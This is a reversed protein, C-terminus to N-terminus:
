NKKNFSVHLVYLRLLEVCYIGTYISIYIQSLLCIKIKFIHLSKSLKVENPVQEWIKVARHRFGKKTMELKAVPPYYSGKTTNRTTKGSVMSTLQFMNIIGTPQLHHVVKYMETATHAWHRDNLLPLNSRNHIEKTPARPM